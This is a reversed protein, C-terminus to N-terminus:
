EKPEYWGFVSASGNGISSLLFIVSGLYTLIKGKM